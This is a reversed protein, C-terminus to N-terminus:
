PSHDGSEHRDIEGSAEINRRILLGQGGCFGDGTLIKVGLSDPVASTSDLCKALNVGTMWKDVSLQMLVANLSDAKIRFGDPKDFELGDQLDLRVAFSHVPGLASDTRGSIVLNTLLGGPDEGGDKGRRGSSGEGEDLRLRVRKYLGEPLHFRDLAPTSVGTMLDMSLAGRLSVEESDCVVGPAQACSLGEPLEFDIRSINVNIATLILATGAADRVTFSGDPNRIVIGSSKLLAPSAKPLATDAASRATFALTVDALPPNGAGAGGAVKEPSCHTLLMALLAALYLSPKSM